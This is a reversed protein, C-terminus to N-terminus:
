AISAKEKEVRRESRDGQLLMKDTYFSFRVSLLRAPVEIPNGELLNRLQNLQTVLDHYEHMGPLFSDLSGLGEFFRGRNITTQVLKATLVM